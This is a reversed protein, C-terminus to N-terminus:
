SSFCRPLGVRHPRGRRVILARSISIYRYVMLVVYQTCFVGM